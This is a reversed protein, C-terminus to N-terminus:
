ALAVRSDPSTPRSFDTAPPEPAAKATGQMHRRSSSSRHRCRRVVPRPGPSRDPCGLPACSSTSRPPTAPRGGSNATSRAMASTSRCCRPGAAWAFGGQRRLSASGSLFRGAPQLLRAADAAATGVAPAPAVGRGLAGARRRVRPRLLPSPAREHARGPRARRQRAIGDRALAQGRVPGGRGSGGDALGVLHAGASHGHARGPVRRRGLVGREGARLGAGPRRRGDPRASEAAAGHRYNPSVVIYGRPLWHRAKNAVVGSNGKDGLMWAGGHVMLLIPANKAGEPIYVDLKQAPAPGYALDREARAGPPLAFKGGPSEGSELEAAAPDPAEAAQGQARRARFTELLSQAGADAVAGAGVVVLLVAAPWRRLTM